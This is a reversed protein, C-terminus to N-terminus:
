AVGGAGGIDGFWETANAVVKDRLTEPDCGGLIAHTPRWTDARPAASSAPGGSTAGTEGIELRTLREEINRMQEKNVKEATDMREEMKGFRKDAKQGNAVTVKGVALIRKGQSGVAVKLEQM